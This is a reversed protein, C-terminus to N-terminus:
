RLAEENLRMELPVSGHLMEPRRSDSRSADLAAQQARFEHYSNWPLISLTQAALEEVSVPHHSASPGRPNQYHRVLSVVTSM